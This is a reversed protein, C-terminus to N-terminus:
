KFKVELEWGNVRGDKSTLVVGDIGTPSETGHTNTVRLLMGRVGKSYILAVFSEAPLAAVKAASPTGKPEIALFDERTQVFVAVSQGVTPLVEGSETDVIVTVPFAMGSAPSVSLFLAFAFALLTTKM